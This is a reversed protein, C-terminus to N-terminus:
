HTGFDAIRLTCCRQVDLNNYMTQFRHRLTDDIHQLFVDVSKEAPGSRVNEISEKRKEENEREGKEGEEWGEWFMRPPVQPTPKHSSLLRVCSQKARTGGLSQQPKKTLQKKMTRILRM